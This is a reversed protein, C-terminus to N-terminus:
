LQKTQFKYLCHEGYWGTMYCHKRELYALQNEGTLGKTVLPVYLFFIFLTEEPGSPFCYGVKEGCQWRGQLKDIGNFWVSHM